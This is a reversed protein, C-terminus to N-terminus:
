TKDGSVPWFGTVEFPCQGNEDATFFWEDFPITQGKRKCVDAWIARWSAELSDVMGDLPKNYEKLLEARRKRVESLDVPDDKAM